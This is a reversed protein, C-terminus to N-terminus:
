SKVKILFTFFTLLLFPTDVPHRPFFYYFSGMRENMWENIPHHLFTCTWSLFSNIFQEGQKQKDYHRWMRISVLQLNNWTPITNFFIPPPSRRAHQQIQSPLMLKFSSIHNQRNLQTTVCLLRHQWAISLCFWIM